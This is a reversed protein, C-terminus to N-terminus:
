GFPEGVMDGQWHKSPPSPIAVNVWVGHDQEGKQHTSAKVGGMGVGRVGFCV